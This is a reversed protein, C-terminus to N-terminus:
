RDGCGKAIGVMRSEAKLSEEWARKWPMFRHPKKM